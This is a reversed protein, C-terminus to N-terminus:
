LAKRAAEIKSALDDPIAMSRFASVNAGGTNGHPVLGAWTKTAAGIIRVVQGFMENLRNYRFGWILMRMHVRVHQFTSAQGLVHARELHRFARSEEGVSEASRAAALEVDIAPGIRKGYSM